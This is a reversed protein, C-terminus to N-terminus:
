PPTPGQSRSILADTFRDIGTDLSDDNQITIVEVDHPLEIAVRALRRRIEPETERGRQALRDALRDFSATVHVVVLNSVVLKIDSVVSRSGNAVIHKGKAQQTLLNRELGYEYGHAQWTILFDGHVKRQQFLTPDCSTYEEGIMGPPKTIVRKAFLFSAKSLRQRAGDMLSDKGAGSPGVVFFFCGPQVHDYMPDSAQGTSRVNM